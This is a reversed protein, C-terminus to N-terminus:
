GFESGPFDDVSKNVLFVMEKYGGVPSKMINFQFALMHQSGQFVFFIFDPLM